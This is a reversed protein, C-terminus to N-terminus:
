RNVRITKGDRTKFEIHDGTVESVGSPAEPGIAPADFLGSLCLPAQHNSLLMPSRPAIWQHCDLVTQKVDDRLGVLYSHPKAGDQRTIILARGSKHVYGKVDRGDVMVKAWPSLWFCTTYGQFIGYAVVAALFGAFALALWFFSKM